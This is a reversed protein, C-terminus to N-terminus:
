KLLDSGPLSESVKRISGFHPKQALQGRPQERSQKLISTSKSSIPRSVPPLQQLDLPAKIIRLQERIQKCSAAEQVRGSPSRSVKQFSRPGLYFLWELCAELLSGSVKQFQLSVSLLSVPRGSFKHLYGQLISVVSNGIRHNMM